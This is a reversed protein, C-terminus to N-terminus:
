GFYKFPLNKIIDDRNRKNIDGNLTVFIIHKGEHIDIKSIAKGEILTGQIGSIIASNPVRNGLSFYDILDFLKNKSEFLEDSFNINIVTNNMLKKIEDVQRYLEYNSKNRNNQRMCKNFEELIKNINYYLHSIKQTILIELNNDLIDIIEEKVKNINNVLNTNYKCIKNIRSALRDLKGLLTEFSIKVSSIINTYSNKDNYEVNNIIEYLNQRNEYIENINEVIQSPDNVNYLKIINELINDVDLLQLKILLEYILVGYRTLTEEDVYNDFKLTKLNFIDELAQMEDLYLIDKGFNRLFIAGFSTRFSENNRGSRGVRQIFSDSSHPAGYQLVINVSPLNVGLELTSTSICLNWAGRSLIAEVENRDREKMDANHKLIYFYENDNIYNKGVIKVKRSNSNVFDIARNISDIVSRIDDKIINIDGQLLYKTIEKYSLFFQLHSYQFFLEINSKSNLSNVLKYLLPASKKNPDIILLKDEHLKEEALNRKILNRFIEFQSEKNDVFAIVKPIYSKDNKGLAKNTKLSLGISWLLSSVLAEIFPTRSEYSPSPFFIATIILRKKKRETSNIIDYYSLYIKNNFIDKLPAKFLYSLDPEKSTRPLLTLDIGGLQSSVINKDFIERDEITASSIILDFNRENIVKKIMESIQVNENKIIAMSLFIRFLLFHMFDVRDKSSLHYHAEDIVITNLGKILDRIWSKKGIDSSLHYSIMSHNSIVLAPENINELKKIESLWSLEEIKNGHEDYLYLKGKKDYRITYEENNIKFKVGGRFDEENSPPKDKSHGDLIYIHIKKNQLMKNLYYVLKIFTELQDRALSKTPYIILSIGGKKILKLLIYSAFIYTKGSGTPASIVGLKPKDLSEILKKSMEYQYTNFQTIGLSKFSECVVKTEQDCLDSIDKEREPVYDELFPLMYAELVYYPSRDVDGANYPLASEYRFLKLLEGYATKFCLGLNTNEDSKKQVYEKIYELIEQFVKENNIKDKIHNLMYYYKCKNNVNFNKGTVIDLIKSLIGNDCPLDILLRSELLKELIQKFETMNFSNVTNIYVYILDLITLKADFNHTLPRRSMPVYYGGIKNCIDSFRVLCIEHKLIEQYFDIFTDDSFDFKM